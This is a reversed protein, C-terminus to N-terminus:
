VAQLIEPPINWIGYGEFDVQVKKPNVKVITGKANYPKRNWCRELLQVDDGAKWNIVQKLRQQVKQIILNLVLPDTTRNIGDMIDQPVTEHIKVQAM